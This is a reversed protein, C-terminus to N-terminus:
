ILMEKLLQKLAHEFSPLTSLRVNVCVRKPMSAVFAVTQCLDDEQLM